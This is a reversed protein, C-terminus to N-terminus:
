SVPFSPPYASVEVSANDNDMSGSEPAEQDAERRNDEDVTKWGMDIHEHQTAPKQIAKSTTPANYNKAAQPHSPTFKSAYLGV